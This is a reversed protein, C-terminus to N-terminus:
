LEYAKVRGPHGSAPRPVVVPEPHRPGPPPATALAPHPSRGTGPSSGPGGTGVPKRRTAATSIDDAHERGVGPIM